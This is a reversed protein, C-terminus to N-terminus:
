LVCCCFYFDNFKYVSVYNKDRCHQWNRFYRSGKTFALIGLIFKPYNPCCTKIGMVVVIRSGPV